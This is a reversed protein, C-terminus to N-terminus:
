DNLAEIFTAWQGTPAWGDGMVNQIVLRVLTEDGTSEYYDLAPTLMARIDARQEKTADASAAGVYLTLKLGDVITTM